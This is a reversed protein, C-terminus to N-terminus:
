DKANLLTIEQKYNERLQYVTDDLKQKDKSITSQFDLAVGAVKNKNLLYPMMKKLAEAANNTSMQWSHRRKRNGVVTHETQQRITGGLVKQMELLPEIAVHNIGIRLYHGEYIKGNVKAKRKQITVFGEGDFFGACWALKHTYSM